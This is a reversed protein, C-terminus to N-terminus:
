FQNWVFQNVNRIAEQHSSSKNSGVIVGHVIGFKRANWLEDMVSSIEDYLDIFQFSITQNSISRIYM